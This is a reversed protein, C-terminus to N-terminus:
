HVLIEKAAVLYQRPRGDQAISLKLATLHFSVALGTGFEVLTAAILAM